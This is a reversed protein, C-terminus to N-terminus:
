IEYVTLYIFNKVNTRLTLEEPYDYTDLISDLGRALHHSLAGVMLTRDKYAATFAAIYFILSTLKYMPKIYPNIKSHDIQTRM